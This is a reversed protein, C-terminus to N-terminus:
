NTNKLDRLTNFISKPLLLRLIVKISMPNLRLTNSALLFKTGAIIKKDFFLSEAHSLMINSLATHKYADDILKAIVEIRIPLTTWYKTHTNQSHYRYLFLPRDYYGPNYEKFLVVLMAWDDSKYEKRIYRLKQLIDIKFLGSQTLPGGWDKSSVFELAKGREISEKFDNLYFETTINEKYSFGRSYVCDYNSTELFRVQESFKNICLVGDSALLQIYKGNAIQLGMDISDNVGKNENKFILRVTRNSLNSFDLSDLVIKTKDSSFDDIVIIEIFGQYSQNICSQITEEIYHAHNYSPIIVSVIEM